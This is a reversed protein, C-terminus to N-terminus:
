TCFRRPKHCKPTNRQPYECLGSLDEVKRRDFKIGDFRGRFKLCDGQVPRRWPIAVAYLTVSAIFRSLTTNLDITIIAYSLFKALICIM